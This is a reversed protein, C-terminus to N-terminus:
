LLPSIAGLSEKGFLQTMFEPKTMYFAGTEYDVYKPKVQEGQMEVPQAPPVETAVIRPGGAKAQEGEKAIKIKRQQLYERAAPTLMSGNPVYYVEPQSNRLELRLANETIPKM